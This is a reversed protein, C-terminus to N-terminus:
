GNFWEKPMKQEAWDFGHKEAWKANTTKSGKYIKQKANYFLFKFIANYFLISIEKFTM